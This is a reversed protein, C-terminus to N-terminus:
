KEGISDIITKIEDTTLPGTISIIEYTHPNAWNATASDLNSMIYFTKNNSTYQTINSDKEFMHQEFSVQTYFRTVSIHVYNNGNSFLVSVACSSNDYLVELPIMEYGEPYWKPALDASIQHEILAAQIANHYEEHKPNQFEANDPKPLPQQDTPSIVFHFTEETWRAIAGFVDVGSAQAVVMGGFIAVVIIAAVLGRQLLRRLHVPKTKREFPILESAASLNQTDSVDEEAYLSEENGESINYYQQFENWADNVDFPSKTPDVKERQEIVELIHFIVGDDSPEPSKIDARLLLELQETTLRDLYAYKETSKAM